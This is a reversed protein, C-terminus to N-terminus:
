RGIDKINSKPIVMYGGKNYAIAVTYNKSVEQKYSTDAPPRYKTMPASPYYKDERAAVLLPESAPRFVPETKRTRKVSRKRGSYSYNISGSIVM